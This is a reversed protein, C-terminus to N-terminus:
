SQNSSKVRSRGAGQCLATLALARTATDISDQALCGALWAAGLGRAIPPGAAKGGDTRAIETLDHTM